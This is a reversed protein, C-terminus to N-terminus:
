VADMKDLYEDIIHRDYLVARGFKKRAGIRQAFGTLSTRGMGTYQEAQRQTRLRPTVERQEKARM